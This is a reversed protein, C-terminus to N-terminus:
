EVEQLPGCLSSWKKESPLGENIIHHQRHFTEEGRNEIPYTEPFVKNCQPCFLSGSSVGIVYATKKM